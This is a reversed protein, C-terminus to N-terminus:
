LKWLLLLGYNIINPKAGDPTSDYRDNISLKLNLNHEQSLLLEWGFQTVMRYNDFNGWEPFYDVTLELKQRETLQRSFDAGYVLEMVWDDNVGGFEHSTGLGYRGKLQTAETDIFKYGLGSNLALRVDFPKFEDYELFERAFFSWRSEGFKREYRFNQIANNQTEVGNANTNVYNFDFTTEYQKTKRKLKSGIIFSTSESNGSTGNIGVELSGEWDVLNFWYTPMIWSDSEETIPLETVPLDAPAILEPAEVITNQAVRPSETSVPSQIPPLRYLEQDTPWQALVSMPLSLFSSALLLYSLRQRFM